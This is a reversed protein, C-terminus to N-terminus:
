RRRRRARAAPDARRLGDQSSVHVALLEGGASRAAIRAGRRLLTEGETGGTLAVVVRERAQWSGRIGHEARYSQLASDVEDALWLLAVERLATLNGLRFYNSLAADVREAPYVQGASLRDRLTQPALDVVEIRDARRVVADPVTERQAVGTIREVVDGLSEIHQVNVTTIVDIGADLLEEVDAWRKENRSGPANTHALEDVLAVDPDRALVADLDMESLEVGRHQTIRRPVQELGETQAATAARGHTEVIAIVVDRGDEALGRGEQLMEFTKGVGPAAGLFIKLRGRGEQAAARLLADPDPRGNGPPAM